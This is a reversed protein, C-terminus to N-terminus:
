LPYPKELACLSYPIFVTTKENPGILIFWVFEQESLKWVSAKERERKSERM